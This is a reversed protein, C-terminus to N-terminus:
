LLRGSEPPADKLIDDVAKRWRAPLRALLEPSPRNALVSEKLDYEDAPDADRLFPRGDDDQIVLNAWRVCELHASWTEFEGDHNQAGARYPEGVEIEHGCEDCIRHKRAARVNRTSYFSV